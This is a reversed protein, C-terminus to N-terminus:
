GVALQKGPRSGLLKMRRKWFSFWKASMGGKKVLLRAMREIVERYAGLHIAMSMVWGAVDNEALRDIDEQSLDPNCGRRVDAALRKAEALEPSSVDILEGKQVVTRWCYGSAAFQISCVPPVPVRTGDCCVCGDDIYLDTAEFGWIDRMVAYAILSEAAIKLELETKYGIEVAEGSGVAYCPDDLREWDINVLQNGTKTNKYSNM